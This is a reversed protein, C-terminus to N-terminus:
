LRGFKNWNQFKPTVDLASGYPLVWTFVGRHERTVHGAAVADSVIDYIRSYNYQDDRFHRGLSGMTIGTSFQKVYEAVTKVAQKYRKSSRYDERDFEDFM